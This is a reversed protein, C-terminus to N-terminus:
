GSIPGSNHNRDSYGRKIAIEEIAVANKLVEDGAQSKACFPCFRFTGPAIGPCQKHCHICEWWKTGGSVESM